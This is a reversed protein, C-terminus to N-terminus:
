DDANLSGDQDVDDDLTEPNCDDDIGNYPVETEGPNISANTDDCDNELDYTDGDLDDISACGSLLLTTIYLFLFLPKM